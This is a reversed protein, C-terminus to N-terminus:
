DRGLTSGSPFLKSWTPDTHSPVLSTSATMFRPLSSFSTKLGLQAYAGDAVVVARCARCSGSMKMIWVKGRGVDKEGPKGQKNKALSFRCRCFGLFSERNNDKSIQARM